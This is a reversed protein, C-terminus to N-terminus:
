AADERLMSCVPGACMCGRRHVDRDVWEHRFAGPHQMAWLTLLGDSSLGLGAHIDCVRAAITNPSLNLKAAMQKYRYGDCILQLVQAERRSLRVRGFGDNQM